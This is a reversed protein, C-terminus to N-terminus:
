TQPTRSLGECFRMLANVFEAPSEEHPLDGGPLVVFPADPRLARVADAERLPTQKADNGWVLLLPRALARLADRIDLNLQMGVFAAPAFRANPQHAAKWYLEVVEDTLMRRDSYIDKLFFRISGKSVLASFLLSGVGQSRFLGQVMGSAAGGATTLRSVGAPGIACVARVLEPHARAVAIAYTGGLSSGVVVAPAGVCERLFDSLLDTYLSSTYRLPPHDSAGFGLLDLSFTTFREALLPVVARWEM